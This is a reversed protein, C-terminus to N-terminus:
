FGLGLVWLHQHIYVLHGLPIPGINGFCLTPRETLAEAFTGLM